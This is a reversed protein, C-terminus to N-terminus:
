GALNRSKYYEVQGAGAFTVVRSALATIEEQTLKRFREVLAVKDKLFEPKEAGVILVSLPQSMAFFIADELSLHNPVIPDESTWAAQTNVDKRAFFRGDALTKMALIGLWRSKGSRSDRTKHDDCEYELLSKKELIKLSHQNAM